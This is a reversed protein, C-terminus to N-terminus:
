ARRRRRCTTTDSGRRRLSRTSGRGPKFGPSCCRPPRGGTRRPAALRLLECRHFDLPLDQLDQVSPTFRQQGSSRAQVHARRAAPSGPRARAAASPELGSAHAVPTSTATLTWGRVPTVDRHVNAAMTPTLTWRPKRPSRRHVNAAMTPTLTWGRPQTRGRHVNAGGPTSPAAASLSPPRGCRRGFGLSAWVAVEGVVSLSGMFASDTTAGTLGM